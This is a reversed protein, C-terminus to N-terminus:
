RFSLIARKWLRPRPTASPDYSASAEARVRDRLDPFAVSAVPVATRAHEVQDDSLNLLFQCGQGQEDSRVVRAVQVGIGEIDISVVAGVDIAIGSSLHCGTRSLDDITIELTSTTRERLTAAKGIASRPARSDQASVRGPLSSARDKTM